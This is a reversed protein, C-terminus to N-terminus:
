TGSEGPSNGGLDTEETDGHQNSGEITFNEITCAAKVTGNESLEATKPTNADDFWITVAVTDDKILKVALCGDESWITDVYGDRLTDIVVPVASVPAIGSATLDGTALIVDKYLLSSDEADLHATIGSLLEPADVTVDWADQKCVCTLGYDEVQDGENVTLQATLSLVEAEAIPQRLTEFREQQSHGGCGALLGCTIMLVSIVM